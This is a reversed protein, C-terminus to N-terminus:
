EIHRGKELVEYAADIAYPDTATEIFSQLRIKGDKGGGITKAAQSRVWWSEDQLLKQLIPFTDSFPLNGLLKAVMLREEWIPSSAFPLYKNMKEIYGIQVIAKLARIRIEANEHELRSELFPLYEADRKVGLLDIISYQCSLPLEEMRKMLKQLTRIDVSILLKKFEYESFTASLKLIKNLLREPQLLSYIKLLQFSEEKSLRREELKVCEHSLSTMQFDIIRYLANMRVSWRRHTLLKQYHLKLYQNAFRKIEEQIEENSVNKLYALFIEEVGAIEHKNKPIFEPAFEIEGRFYRYWKDETANMYSEKQKSHFGEVIRKYALYISFAILMVMLSIIVRLLINISIIM